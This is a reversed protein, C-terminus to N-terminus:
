RQLRPGRPPRSRIRVAVLSVKFFDYVDYFGFIGVLALFVNKKAM